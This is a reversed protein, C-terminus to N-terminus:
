EDPTCSLPHVGAVDAPPNASDPAAANLPNAPAVFTFEYPPTVMLDPLLTTKKAYTVPGSEVKARLRFKADHVNQPIVRVTWRGAAPKLAFDELNFESEGPNDATAAVAGTPDVLDLEFQSSRDPTDIAVRLRWGGASVQIPYDYCTTVQCAAAGTLRTHVDEVCAGNWFVAGGVALRHVVPPTAQASASAFASAGALMAAVAAVRAAPARLIRFMPSVTGGSRKTGM